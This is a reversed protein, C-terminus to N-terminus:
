IPDIQLADLAIRLTKLQRAPTWYEPDLLANVTIGDLLPMIVDVVSILRDGTLGITSAEATLLKRLQAARANHRANLEPRSVALAWFALWIKLESVRTEDLPLFEALSLDVSKTGDALAVENRSLADEIAQALAADLLADKSTFWHNILGITCGAEAAVARMSFGEVGDRGLLRFAAQVIEARRKEPHAPRPM